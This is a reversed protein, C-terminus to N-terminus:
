NVDEFSGIHKGQYDIYIEEDSFLQFVVLSDSIRRQNNETPEINLAENIIFQPEGLKHMCVRQENIWMRLNREQCEWSGSLFNLDINQINNMNNFNYFM